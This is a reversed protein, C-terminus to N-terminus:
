YPFRNNKIVTRRNINPNNGNLPITFTLSIDYKCSNTHQLANLQHLVLVLQMFPNMCSSRDGSVVRQRINGNVMNLERTSVPLRDRNNNYNYDVRSGDARELAAVIFTPNNLVVVIPDPNLTTITNIAVGINADSVRQVNLNQIHPNEIIVRFYIDSPNNNQRAHNQTGKDSFVLHFDWGDRVQFDHILTLIINIQNLSSGNKQNISLSNNDEKKEEEEGQNETASIGNWFCSLSSFLLIITRKMNM